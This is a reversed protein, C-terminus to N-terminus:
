VQAFSPASGVLVVTNKTIAAEMKAVDVRFTTPDVPVHVMKIGFYHSAKDFAAHATTPVVMEPSRIGKSEM